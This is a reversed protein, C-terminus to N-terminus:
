CKARRIARITGNPKHIVVSAARDVAWLVADHRERFVRSLRRAGPVKVGWRGAPTPLVHYRVIM